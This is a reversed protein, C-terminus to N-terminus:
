VVSPRGPDIEPAEPCGNSVLASGHGGGHVRFPQPASRGDGACVALMSADASCSERMAGRDAGVRPSGSGNIWRQRTSTTVFGAGPALRCCAMTRRISLIDLLKKERFKGAPFVAQTGQLDHEACSIGHAPASHDIPRRAAVEERRPRSTAHVSSVLPLGTAAPHDRICKYSWRHRWMRRNAYQRMRSDVRPRSQM